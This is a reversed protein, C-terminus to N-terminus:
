RGTHELWDLWDALADSDPPNAPTGTQALSAFRHYLHERQAADPVAKRVVTRFRAAVNVWAAMGGAAAAVRDRILGAMFPAAGGTGVCVTLPGEKWVAGFTVTCLEPADVVNVPIGLEQAESSVARNVEKHPTAAIVLRYGRCDGRGYTRPHWRIRGNRVAERIRDDLAPAIVTLACSTALLMDLKRAAVSGGGIMLCPLQDLKFFLPLDM